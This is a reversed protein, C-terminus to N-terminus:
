RGGSPACAREFRRGALGLIENTVTAYRQTSAIDKHGMYTALVPLRNQVDEGEAYWQTIRHVAFSHRLDHVRAGGRGHAPKLGCSRLLAAGHHGITSPSYARGRYQFVPQDQRPEARSAPLAGIHERLKRLVDAAVPVLRSKFFKTERILLTGDNFNVDGVRLNVAESLRLGCAYLVLLITLLMRSRGPCRASDPLALAARLLQRVQEKTYIFAVPEPVRTPWLSRHHARDPVFVKSSTRHRYLCFQRIMGIRSARTQPHLGVMWTRLIPVSLDTAEPFRSELFGDLVSLDERQQGAQVGAGTSGGSLQRHRQGTQQPVFTPPTEHCCERPQSLSAM